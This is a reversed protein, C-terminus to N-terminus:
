DRIGTIKLGSGRARRLVALVEEHSAADNFAAIGPLDPGLLAALREEIRDGAATGAGVVRDIAGDLSWAMAESSTASCRNGAADRAAAGRCWRHPDALITLIREILVADRAPRWAEIECDTDTGRMWGIQSGDGEPAGLSPELDGSDEIDPDGDIADLLAIIREAAQELTARLHATPAALTRAVALSM